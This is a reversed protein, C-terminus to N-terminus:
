SEAGLLGDPPDVVVREPLASADVIFRSPLLTGDELELLDDAPNAMVAAVRGWTRGDPTTVEAGVLEHVWIADDDDLAEARILQGSLAEAAERTNVGSLTVIWRQGHAHIADVTAPGADLVWVAGTETREPQDSTIIATVDGRLGHPRGIRGVELFTVVPLSREVVL